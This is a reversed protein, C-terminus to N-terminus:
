PVSVHFLVRAAHRDVRNEDGSAVAAVDHQGMFAEDAESLVVEDKPRRSLFLNSRWTRCCDVTAILSYSQGRRIRRCSATDM